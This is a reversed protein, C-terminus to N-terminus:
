LLLTIKEGSSIHISVRLLLCCLMIASVNGYWASERMAFALTMNLDVEPM